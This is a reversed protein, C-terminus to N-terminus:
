GISAPWAANDLLRVEQDGEGLRATILARAPRGPVPKRLTEADRVTAYDISTIGAANLVQRMVGEAQEPDEVEGAKVLARRIAIAQGRSQKSLFVNRSSLALGDEARITPSAVIQVGLGEGASMARVVQLQQWDKEGFVAAAPRAVAFLRRVVQVVGEFHGPRHEDELGRGVAVDPIPEVPVDEGQPYMDEVAPAFVAVAGAAAALEADRELPRPYREFDSRVNFQTPNVFVSVVCGGGHGHEAAHRTGHRILAEHGAHLAGMTPVLVTRGAVGALLEEATRYIQM